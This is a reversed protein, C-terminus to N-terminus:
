KGQKNMHFLSITLFEESLELLTGRYIIGKNKGVQSWYPM